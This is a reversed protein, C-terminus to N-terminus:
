ADYRIALSQNIEKVVVRVAQLLDQPNYLLRLAYSLRTDLLHVFVLIAAPRRAFMFGLAQWERAINIIAKSM